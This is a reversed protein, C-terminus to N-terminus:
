DELEAIVSVQASDAGVIRSPGLTLARIKKSGIPSLMMDEIATIFKDTHYGLLWQHADAGLDNCPSGISLFDLGICLLKPFNEVLYKSLEPHISPGENEYSYPETHKYKEFGTRILLIKKNKLQEAYPEIDQKNVTEKAKKPVDVLLIDEEKYAFYDIPLEAIPIGNPNFHRPADFHTGFHNPVHAIVSNFPKGNKGIISDKDVKLVAEGPWAGDAPDLKYSLFAFM